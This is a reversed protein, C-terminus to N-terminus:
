GFMCVLVYNERAVISKCDYTMSSVLNNEYVTLKVSGDALRTHPKVRVFLQCFPPKAFVM